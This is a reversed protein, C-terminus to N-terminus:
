EDGQKTKAMDEETQALMASKMSVTNGIPRPPKPLPPEEVSVVLTKEALMLNGGSISQFNVVGNEGEWPDGNRDMFFGNVASKSLTKRAADVTLGIIDPVMVLPPMPVPVFKIKLSSEEKWEKAQLAKYTTDVLVAKLRPKKVEGELKGEVKTEEVMSFNLKMLFEAEPMVFWNATLGYGALVEDELIEKQTKIALLDMKRQAEALGSGINMIVDSVDAYFAGIVSKEEKGGDDPDKKPPDDKPPDPPTPPVVVVPPKLPTLVAKDIVSSVPVLKEAAVSVTQLTTASKVSTEAVPTASSSAAPTATAAPAPEAAKVAAASPALTAAELTTTAAVKTAVVPEAAKVATAAPTVTAAPAPTAATTAPAPAATTAAPTAAAPAPTAVPTVTATTAAVRTVTAAPAPEAAKVPEPAIEEVIIARALTTAATKLPSAVKTLLSAKPLPQEFNFKDQLQEKTLKGAGILALTDEVAATCTKVTTTLSFEMINDPVAVGLSEAIKVYAEAQKGTALRAQALTASSTKPPWVSTWLSLEELAIKKLDTFAIDLKESDEALKEL